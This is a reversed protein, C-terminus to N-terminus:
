FEALSGLYGALEILEARTFEHTKDEVRVKWDSDNSKKYIIAVWTDSDKKKFAYINFHVREVDFILDHDEM